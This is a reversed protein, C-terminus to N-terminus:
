SLIAHESIEHEVTYLNKKATLRFGFHCCLGKCHLNFFPFSIPCLPVSSTPCGSQPPHSVADQTVLNYFMVGNRDMSSASAHSSRLGRPEELLRFAEDSSSSATENRLVSTPVSFERFSTMPHFFLTRDGTFSDVPSLSLGFVGDTWRFVLGHLDYRAALPDPYFFPHSVRWSRDRRWSYVVIAFGWVDTLYAHADDCRGDRVDVAVNTFLSDQKVQDSPLTYRWLLADTKLDFVLLQPPCQQRMSTLANVVGSDLVWLRGCPDVAMRYVSTLGECGVGRHWEWSPYPRLLPSTTGAEVVIVCTFIADRVM